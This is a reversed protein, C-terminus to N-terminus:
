LSDGVLPWALLGKLVVPADLTFARKIADVSVRDLSPHPRGHAIANRIDVIDLKEGRQTSVDLMTRALPILAEFAALGLAGEFRARVHPAEAQAIMALLERLSPHATLSRIPRWDTGKRLENPLDRAVKRFPVLLRERLERELTLVLLHASRGLDDVAGHYTVDARVLDEQSDAHLRVFDDGLIARWRERSRTRLQHHWHWASEIPQSPAARTDGGLADNIEAILEEFEQKESETRPVRFAEDRLENAMVRVEDLWARAMERVRPSKLARIVRIRRRAARSLYWLSEGHLGADACVHASAQDVKPTLVPHDLEDALPRVDSLACHAEATRGRARLFEVYRLSIRIRDKSDDRGKAAVRAAEFAAEAECTLRVVEEADVDGARDLRVMALHARHRLASTCRRSDKAEEGRRLEDEFRWAAEDLDGRLLAARGALGRANALRRTDAGGELLEEYRAYCDDASARQKLEDLLAGLNGLLRARV